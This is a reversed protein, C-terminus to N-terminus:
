CLTIATVLAFLRLKVTVRVTFRYYIHKSIYVCAWLRQSCRLCLTSLVNSNSAVLFDLGAHVDMSVYFDCVLCLTESPMRVPVCPVSGDELSRLCCVSWTTTIAMKVM